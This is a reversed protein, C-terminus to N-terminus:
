RVRRSAYELLEQLYPLEGYVRNVLEAIKGTEDEYEHAIVNRLGKLEFCKEESVPFGLKEATSILDVMSLNEVNEGLLYLVARLLKGLSDQIKSFRYAIQDLVMTGERTKLLEEVAKDNLPLEYGLEKLLSYAERLRRLYKEEEQFLKLFKERL